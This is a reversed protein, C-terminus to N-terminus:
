ENMTDGPKVEKGDYIKLEIEASLENLISNRCANPTKILRALMTKADYTIGFFHVYLHLM